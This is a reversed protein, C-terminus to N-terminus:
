WKAEPLDIKAKVRELKPAQVKTGSSSRKSVLAKGQKFSSAKITKPTPVKAKSSGGGGYSRWRRWRRRGYRRRYGSKSSEEDDKLKLAGKENSIQEVGNAKGAAAAQERSYKTVAGFPNYKGNYYYLADYLTAKDEIDTRSNVYDIIEQKKPYGNGDADLEKMMQRYDRATFGMAALNIGKQVNKAKIDYLVYGRAPANAQSLSTALGVYSRNANYEIEQEKTKYEALTIKGSGLDSKAQEIEAQQDYDSLKGLDKRVKELKVFEKTSGGDSVYNRARNMKNDTETRSQKTGGYAGFLEDSAGVEALAVSKALTTTNKKGTARAIKDELKGVARVGKYFDKDADIKKQMEKESINGYVAKGYLKMADKDSSSGFKDIAYSTGVYKQVADMAKASSPPKKGDLADQMMKNRVEQLGRIDEQKTARDGAQLDRIATTLTSVEKQYANMRKYEASDKDTAKSSKKNDEATQMKEYFRSSLDNQTTSDITFQRKAVNLVAPGAKGIVGKGGGQRSPTLAPLLFDGIVGSEADIIYDAKKPSIQLEKPLNETAKGLARGLYSTNQDYEESPHTDNKISEPVIPSGYWTENKKALLFPAYVSSELPDVPAIQDKGVKVMEAWGMENENKANVTALGYVAAFRGRPIKVFTDTNDATRDNGWVWPIIYNTAKDRASIRQYNPNDELWTNNIWVTGAGLTSAKAITGLM